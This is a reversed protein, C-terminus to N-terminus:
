FTLYNYFADIFFTEFICTYGVALHPLKFNKFPIKLLKAKLRGIVFFILIYVYNNKYYLTSWFFRWLFQSNAPFIIFLSFQICYSSNTVSWWPYYLCYERQNDIFTAQKLASDCTSHQLITNERSCRINMM